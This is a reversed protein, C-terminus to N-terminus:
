AFTRELWALAQRLDKTGLYAMAVDVIDGARGDRPEECAHCKFLGKARNMSASAQSDNHFPCRVAVWTDWNGNRYPTRGGLHAIVEEIGVEDKLDRIPKM